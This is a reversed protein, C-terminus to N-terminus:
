NIKLSVSMRWYTTFTPIAHTNCLKNNNPATSSIGRLYHRQLQGEEKVFVLGGGSDGKCLATGNTYGACIKDSTIYARFDLSADSICQDIEVYPLYAVQLEPSRHGDEDILGWGAVSLGLGEWRVDAIDDFGSCPLSDGCFHPWRGSPM